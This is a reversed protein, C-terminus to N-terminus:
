GLFRLLLIHKLVHGLSGKGAHAEEFNHSEVFTQGGDLFRWITERSFVNIGQSAVTTPAPPVAQFRRQINFAAIREPQFELAASDQIPSASYLLINGPGTFVPFFHKKVCWYVPAVKIHTHIKEFRSSFGALLRANVYYQHGPPVDISIFSGRPHHGTIAVGRTETDADVYKMGFYCGHLARAIPSGFPYPPVLSWNFASVGRLHSGKFFFREGPDMTVHATNAETKINM